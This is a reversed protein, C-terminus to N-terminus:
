NGLLTNACLNGFANAALPSDGTVLKRDTFCAGTIDTNLIDVGLAKLKEGYHWPLEGPLYGILPLQTDVGDPFSKIKYGNYPYNEPLVDISASLLTAPGHCISLMYKDEKIVWNIVKELDENFPLGILAGHGGPTFVAVYECDSQMNGAVFDKLSKPNELQPKYKNYIGMVAEDETPMAWMELQVPKGTPTYIDVEYGAADLHLIPVFTEVPHNGTSFKKGNTMTLYKEETCVLLVKKNKDKNANEYVTFDYNTKTPVYLSRSYLSPEYGTGDFVPDKSLETTM